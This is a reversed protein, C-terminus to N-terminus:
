NTSYIYTFFHIISFSSPLINKYSRSLLLQKAQIFLPYRSNLLFM